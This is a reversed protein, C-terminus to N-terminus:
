NKYEQKRFLKWNRDKSRKYNKAKKCMHKRNQCYEYGDCGLCKNKDNYIEKQKNLFMDAEKELNEFDNDKIHTLEGIIQFYSDPVSSNFDNYEEPTMVDIEALIKDCEKRTM